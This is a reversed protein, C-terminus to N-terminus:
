RTYFRRVAAAVEEVQSVPLHPWLPLSLVERAAKEATPLAGRAQGCDAFAPNLHLPVPYHIGTGIGQAALARRLATRRRARIVYLHHVSEPTHQILTIGPCDRLLEDYLAAIRARAANWGSLRELFARLFCAQIEDLRSNIGAAHAVMGGPLRGGDRASRLRAAARASRVAIAGGDGLAGLNKTPYFSYTVFASWSTLPRGRFRAGHAQAADQLLPLGLTLLRDLPAPQGYLHVPVLARTRPTIWRAASAPDIQLTHPDVDAFRLRAGAAAIGVATFPASLATTVVEDGPRVGMARLALALADTGNGCAIAHPAGTFAAFETEFAAGEPGLIYHSRAFLAELLARWRPETEAIQQQLHVAPIRM